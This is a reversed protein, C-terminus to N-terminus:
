QPLTTLVSEAVCEPTVGYWGVDTMWIGDNYRSFIDHRQKWYKKIEKPVDKGNQYYNATAPLEEEDAEMYELTM